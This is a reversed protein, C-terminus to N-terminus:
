CCCNLLVFAVLIPRRLFSRGKLNVMVLGCFYLKLLHADPATATYLQFSKLICTRFTAHAHRVCEHGEHKKSIMLKVQAAGSNKTHRKHIHRTIRKCKDVLNACLIMGKETPCMLSHKNASQDVVRQIDHPTLTHHQRIKLDEGSAYHVSRQQGSYSRLSGSIFLISICSSM